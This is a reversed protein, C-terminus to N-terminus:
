WSHTDKTDKPLSWKKIKGRMVHYAIGGIFSIGFFIPAEILIAFVCVLIIGTFTFLQEM